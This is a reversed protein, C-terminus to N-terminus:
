PGTARHTSVAVAGLFMGMAFELAPRNRRLRSAFTGDWQEFYLAELSVLADPEYNLERGRKRAFEGLWRLSKDRVAFLEREAVDISPFTPLQSDQRQAETLNTKM